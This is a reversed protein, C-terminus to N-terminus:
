EMGYSRGMRKEETVLEFVGPVDEIAFSNIIPVLPYLISVSLSSQQVKHLLLGSSSVKIPYM